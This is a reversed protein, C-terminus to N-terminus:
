GKKVSDKIVEEARALPKTRSQYEKRNLDMFRIKEPDPMKGPDKMDLLTRIPAHGEPDKGLQSKLMQRYEGILEDTDVPQWPDLQLTNLDCARAQDYIRADTLELRISGYGFAKAKGINMLSGDDLKLAWLLLGLEERSIQHFRVKGEFQTGEKVPVMHSVFPKDIKDEPANGQADTHLWYQKAGRLRFGDDNYNVGRGNLPEVYDLYSTPKPEGQILHVPDDLVNESTRTIVADAFTVRSKYSEKKSSYGFLAKAYDLVPKKHAAPMGEKITLDYFLRLRPTFGFYLRGDLQIYFVPRMKGPAPLDYHQRGGFRGLTTARRSLDIRFARVDTDSVQVSAKGKDVAPIIYVAKKNNMPGTSVAYGANPYKGPAGVATVFRGRVSYSCALEYPKYYRNQPAKYNVRGNWVEKKFGNRIDYQLINKNNGYFFDYAFATGNKRSALYNKAITRESLVYYNINGMGEDIRELGTDYITYRGNKNELYGARVNKLVSVSGNETAIQGAGLVEEYRDKLPSRRGAVQRYMLAYDDVDDAMSSRSLVQVNGRILGRLSSGPIAMRGYADTYFLMPDSVSRGGKGSGIFVPTVAKIRYCIEGDLLDKAAEKRCRAAHAPANKEPYPMVAQDFPVFNYPAGVYGSAKKNNYQGAM